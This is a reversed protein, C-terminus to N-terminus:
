PDGRMKQRFKGCMKEKKVHIGRMEGMDRPNELNEANKGKIKCANKGNKRSNGQM